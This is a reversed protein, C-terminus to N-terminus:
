HKEVFSFFKGDDTFSEMTRLVKWRGCFKGDDTFSEMTRLVKWRGCTMSVNALFGRLPLMKIITGSLPPLSPIMEYLQPNIHILIFSQPIM